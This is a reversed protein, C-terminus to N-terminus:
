NRYDLFSVTQWNATCIILLRLTPEAAAAAVGEVEGAKSQLMRRNVWSIIIAQKVLQGDM